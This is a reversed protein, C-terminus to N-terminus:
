QDNEKSSPYLKEPESVKGLRHEVIEMFRQFGTQELQATQPDFGPQHAILTM